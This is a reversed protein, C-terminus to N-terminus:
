SLTFVHMGDKGTNGLRQEFKAWAVWSASHRKNVTVAHKFLRRVLAQGSIDLWADGTRPAPSKQTEPQRTPQVRKQLQRQEFM